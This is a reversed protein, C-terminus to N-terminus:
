TEVCSTRTETSLIRDIEELRDAIQRGAHAYSLRRRLDAAGRAGLDTAFDRNEYLRRMLAAAHDVSPEAWHLDATYPPYERGLAVLRFEVLLSNTEDMFDLNGSYRTAIAPKGLLMSEAITLGLGESRHLSVYADACAMLSLTEDRSHVANIVQVRAGQAAAQLKALEAPFQEGFTTKIVLLTDDHESFARRFAAIVGLPNKRETVSTMHFTFLFVFPDEALGFHSRPLREFHPLELGPPFVHVPLTYRARLGEAVFETAAWIEDCRAAAHDWSAPITDFEWYWYGIRYTRPSREYLGSRAMVVNFFPDPQVHIITKDFFELDAFKHHIPEDTALNVPVDRLATEIGNLHLGAIISQISTRLGSPYSFHGFINVGRKVLTRAGDEAELAACWQRANPSVGAEPTGLFRIFGAAQKADALARPFDLRWQENEHYEIRIQEAATLLLPWTTAVLWPASIGYTQRIWDSFRDRGFVTIGDPFRRQWDPTFLWTQVLERGPDEALELLLWWANERELAGEAVASFLTAVLSPRGPPLLFLPERVRLAEDYLAVQRARAPFDASFAADIAAVFGVPLGFQPIGETKLWHAFAGELGDSLARPFRSRLDSRRRLLDIMLRAAARPDAIVDPSDPAWIHTDLPQKSLASVASDDFLDHEDNSLTHSLLHDIEAATAAM